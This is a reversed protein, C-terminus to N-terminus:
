MNKRRFFFVTNVILALTILIWTTPWTEPIEESNMAVDEINGKDEPAEEVVEEKKLFSPTQLDYLDENFSVNEWASNSLSLIMLIYATSSLMERESKVTLVSDWNSSLSKTWVEALIKFDFETATLETNSFVEITKSNVINVKKIWEETEWLDENMFEWSLDEKTVFNFNWTTWSISVITYSTDPTLEDSLNVVVKTNDVSDKVSFGVKIDKLIKIDWEVKESSFTVDSSATLNITNTDMVEIRNISAALATSPLLALIALTALLKIKIIKMPSIIIYIIGEWYLLYIFFFM